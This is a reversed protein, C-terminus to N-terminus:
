TGRPKRGPKAAPPRAEAAPAAAPPAAPVRVNTVARRPPPSPALMSAVGPRSALEKQVASDKLSAIARLEPQDAAPDASRIFDRMLALEKPQKPDLHVFLQVRLARDSSAALPPVIRDFLDYYDKRFQAALDDWCAAPNTDAYDLFAKLHADPAQYLKAAVWRQKAVNRQFM